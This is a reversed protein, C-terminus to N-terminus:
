RLDRLSRVPAICEKKTMEESVRRLVMGKKIEDLKTGEAVVCKTVKPGPRSIVVRGILEEDFGLSDGTKPDKLEDGLEFVEFVEGEACQETTLNVTVFRSNVSLVTTPFALEVLANAADKAVSVIAANLADEELRADGGALIASKVETGKVTKVARIRGTEINAFRLQIEVDARFAKINNAMLKEVGFRIVTGYMVYGAAKLNNSEPAKGETLGADVLSQEKLVTKLQAREVVEFKRSNLVGDLVRNRINQLMGEDIKCNQLPQFQEVVVVDKSLASLTLALILGSCVFIRKVRM